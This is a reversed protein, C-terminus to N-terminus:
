ILLYYFSIKKTKTFMKTSRTTAVALEYVSFKEIFRIKARNRLSNINWVFCSIKLDGQFISKQGFFRTKAKNRLNDINRPFFVINSIIKALIGNKSEVEYVILIEPLIAFIQYWRSFISKPSFFPKKPRVRLSDINQAFHRFNWIM